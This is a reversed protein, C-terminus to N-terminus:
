SLLSGRASGEAGKNGHLYLRVAAWTDLGPVPTASTSLTSSPVRFTASTAPTAPPASCYGDAELMDVPSVTLAPRRVVEVGEIKPDSAGALVAEFTEHCHPSTDPVAGFDM